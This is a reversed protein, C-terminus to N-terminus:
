PMMMRFPAGQRPSKGFQRHLNEVANTTYIITRIEPPYKYYTSLNPWNRKWSNIVLPYKQGWKDALGNLEHEAKAETPATYVKKLDVMFEKQNKSAIYRLSNRIQHIICLQVEAGPLVTTIAEPFGLHTAASFRVRGIMSDTYVPCFGAFAPISSRARWILARGSEYSASRSAPQEFLDM